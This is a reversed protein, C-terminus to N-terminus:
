LARPCNMYPGVVFFTLSIQLWRLLLQPPLHNSPHQNMTHGMHALPPELGRTYSSSDSVILQCCLKDGDRDGSRVDYADMELGALKLQSCVFASMGENHARTTAM